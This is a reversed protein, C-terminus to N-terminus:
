IVSCDKIKSYEAHTGVFRIILVGDVFLVVAVIRFNNGSINFVYRGNGVYDASPFTDKLEQHTTWEAAQVEEVWRNMPKVARSHKQVFDNLVIKNSIIMDREKCLLFSNKKYAFKIQLFRLTQHKTQLQM